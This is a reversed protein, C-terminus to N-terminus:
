RGIKIDVTKVFNEPRVTTPDAGLLKAILNVIGWIAIAVFMAIISWIMISKGNAKKDEASSFLFMALGWFFAIFVLSFAVAMLTTFASDLNQVLSRFWSGFSASPAGAAQAFVWQPVMALLAGLLVIFAGYVKEKSSLSQTTFM